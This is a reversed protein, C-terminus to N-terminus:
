PTLNSTVKDRDNFLASALALRRLHRVCRFSYTILRSQMETGAELLQGALDQHVTELVGGTDVANDLSNEAM